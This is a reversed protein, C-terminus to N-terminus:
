VNNKEYLLPREISRTVSGGPGEVEAESTGGGIRMGSLKGRAVVADAGVAGGHSGCLGDDEFEVGACIPIGPLYMKILADEM